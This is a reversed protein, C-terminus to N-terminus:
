LSNVLNRVYAQLLCARPRKLSALPSLVPWIRHVIFMLLDAANYTAGNQRTPMSPM